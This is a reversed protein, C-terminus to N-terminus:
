NSLKQDFTPNKKKLVNNQALESVMETAEEFTQVRAVVIETAKRRVAANMEEDYEKQNRWGRQPWTLPEARNRRRGLVKVVNKVYDERFKFITMSAAVSPELLIKVSYDYSM